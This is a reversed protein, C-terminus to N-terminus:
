VFYNSKLKGDEGDLMCSKEGVRSHSFPNLVNLDQIQDMVM